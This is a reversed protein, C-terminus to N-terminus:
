VCFLTWHRGRKREEGAIAVGSIFPIRWGFSLMEEPTLLHRLIAVVLVAPTYTHTLFLPRTHTLDHSHVHHSIFSFNILNFPIVGLTFILPTPELTIIHARTHTFTHAHM